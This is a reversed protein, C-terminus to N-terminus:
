VSLIWHRKEMGRKIIIHLVEQSVLFENEFHTFDFCPLLPLSPSNLMVGVFHLLLINVLFCHLVSYHTCCCYMVTVAQPWTHVSARKQTSNRLSSSLCIKLLYPDRLERTQFMLACSNIKLLPCLTKLICEAKWICIKSSWPLNFFHLM